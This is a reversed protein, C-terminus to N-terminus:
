GSARSATRDLRRIGTGTPSAPGAALRWHSHRPRQIKVEAITCDAGRSPRGSGRSGCGSRRLSTVHPDLSDPRQRAPARGQQQDVLREPVHREGPGVSEAAPPPAVILPSRTIDRPDTDFDNQPPNLTPQIRAACGQDVPEGRDPRQLVHRTRDQVLQDHRLQQGVGFRRQRAAPGTPSRRRASWAASALSSGSQSGVWGWPPVDSQTPNGPGKAVSRARSAGVAPTRMTGPGLNPGSPM